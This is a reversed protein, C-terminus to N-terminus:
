TLWRKIFMREKQFLVKLKKLRFFIMKMVSDLDQAIAGLDALMKAEKFNVEVIPEDKKM